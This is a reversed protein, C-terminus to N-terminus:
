PKEITVTTNGFGTYFSLYVRREFAKSFAKDNSKDPV